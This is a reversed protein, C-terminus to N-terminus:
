REVGVFTMSKELILEGTKPDPTRAAVSWLGGPVGDAVTIEYAKDRFAPFQAIRPDATFPRITIRTAPVPKGDVEVEVAETPVTENFHKRIQQQFYAAAGTTLRSMETVDMQLFVLLLPNQERADVPGIARRAEGEFLDLWVKKAGDAGIERVEVRGPASLTKEIGRGRTDFRYHLTQPETVAAFRGPEFVLRAISDEAARASPAQLGALLALAALTLRRM